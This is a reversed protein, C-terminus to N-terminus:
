KNLTHLISQMVPSKRGFEKAAKKAKAAKEANNFKRRLFDLRATNLQEQCPTHGNEQIYYARYVDDFSFRVPRVDQLLRKPIIGARIRKIITKEGVKFMKMVEDFTMLVLFDQSSTKLEGTLWFGGTRAIEVLDTFQRTELRTPDGLEPTWKRRSFTYSFEIGDGADVPTFGHMLTPTQESLTTPALGTIVKKVVISLSSKFTHSM